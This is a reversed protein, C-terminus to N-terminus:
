NKFNKIYIYLIYLTINQYYKNATSSSFWLKMHRNNIFMKFYNEIIFCIIIVKRSDHKEGGVFKFHCIKMVEGYKM